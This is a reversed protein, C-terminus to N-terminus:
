RAAEMAMANYFDRPSTGAPLEAIWECEGEPSDKYACGVWGGDVTGGSCEGGVFPCRGEM